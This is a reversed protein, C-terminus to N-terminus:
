IQIQKVWYISRNKIIERTVVNNNPDKKQRYVAFNTKRYNVEEVQEKLAWAYVSKLATYLRKWENNTLSNKLRHPSIKAKYLAEARMYNGIGSILDQMLMVHAIPMKKGKKSQLIADRFIGWKKITSIDLGIKKTLYTEHQQKTLMCVDGFNRYDVFVFHDTIVKTGQKYRYQFIVNDNAKLSVKGKKQFLNVDSKIRFKGVTGLHFGIFKIAEKNSFDKRTLPKLEIWIYKGKCAIAKIKAPLNKKLLKVSNQRTRKIKGWNLSVNVLITNKLFKLSRTIIVVEPGEPM